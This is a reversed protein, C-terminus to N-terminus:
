IRRGPGVEAQQWSNWLAAYTGDRAVLDDHAGLEVIQGHEILAVRDADKATHLRHAISIVTRGELVAALAREARRAAAPDLLSTAEDLIVTHPAALLIRALAVQQIQAADLQSDAAGLDTALGDPLEAAWTADVTALARFMATDDADPAAIALNDRLTGLFVHHEQTVMLVEHRRQDPSLASLPTGATTVQGRTPVDIGALLRGLTTKGAGSPGVVALYEGEQVALDIGHLVEPGDTYAYHVGAARLSRDPSGSTASVCSESAAPGPLPRVGEARAFAASSRQLPELWTLLATLPDVLKVMYLVATVAAGLSIQHHIYLLGSVLLAVPAPLAYAVDAVPLLVSRLALTRRRTTVADEVTRDAAAIRAQQLQFLEAARAGHTNAALTEAMASNAAGEALYADRARHLYWRSVYALLPLGVLACLGLLPHLLFAATLVFATQLAAALIEPAADRLTSGILAIDGSVRTMLDGTGAREVVTTPLALVRRIFNQRLRALAREGWCAGAHRALRSLLVYLVAFILATAAVTDVASAPRGEKVRNVIDGLLWPSALGAAAALCNLLVTLALAASDAAALRRLAGRVQARDAVPFAPSSVPPQVTPANM